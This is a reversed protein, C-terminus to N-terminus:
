RQLVRPAPPPGLIEIGYEAAVAALRALDPPQVSPPPLTRATAPESLAIVFGEFDAPEAVLLFQAGGPSDVTFSHPVGRPGYLFSGAPAEVVEEGIYFTMEGALVYFWEDERSHRHVPAGFGQPCLHEIACVRGASGKRGIKVTLLSGLFWLAEGEGPQLAVASARADASDM